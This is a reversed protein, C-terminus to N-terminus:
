SGTKELYCLARRLLDADDKFHGLGLNCTRCLLGRVAGTKHCHVVCTKFSADLFNSCVACEGNQDAFLKEWSDRTLGYQKLRSDSLEQLLRPKNKVYRKKAYGRVKDKNLAKWANSSAKAQEKNEHYYRKANVRSQARHRELKQEPTLHKLSTWTRMPALKVM